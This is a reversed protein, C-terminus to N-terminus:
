VQRIKRGAVWGATASGLLIGAAALMPLWKVPFHAEIEWGVTVLTSVGAAVAAGICGAALGYFGGLAIFPGRAMMRSGGCMLVIQIFEGRSKIAAAITMGTFVLSVALAGGILWILAAGARGYFRDVEGMLEGQYIV